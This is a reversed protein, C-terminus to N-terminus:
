KFCQIFDDIYQALYAESKKFRHPLFGKDCIEEILVDIDDFRKFFPIAFENIQNNIEAIVREREHLTAVDHWGLTQERKTLNALTTELIIGNADSNQYTEKRWLTMKESEVSVHVIFRISGRYSPQFWIRYIFNDDARYIDKKSKRHKFGMEKLPEAIRECVYDFIVKPKTGKPFEKLEM